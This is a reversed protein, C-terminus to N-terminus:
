KLVLHLFRARYPRFYYGYPSQKVRGFPQFSELRVNAWATGLTDVLPRAVGDNFSRFMAEAAALMMSSSGSLVGSADTFRGRAGGDLTELGSIGFFSNVQKARPNDLTTMTVSTGFIAVGGFSSM